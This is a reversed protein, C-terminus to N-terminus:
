GHNYTKGLIITEFFIKEKKSVSRAPIGAVVTCEEDISKNVVANAGIATYSPINIEGFIKAGPGIYVYDGIVPSKDTYGAETGIHVQAHLRCFSGVRSSANVIITGYHPIALGPGFVNLPITFNLKVSSLYLRRYYYKFLIKNKLGKKCNKYYECKRLLKQFTWIYDPYFLRKVINNLTTKTRQLAIRDAELYYNYDNLSKIM